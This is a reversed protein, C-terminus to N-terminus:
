KSLLRPIDRLCSDGLKASRAVVADTMRYEGSGWDEPRFYGNDVAKGLLILGFNLAFRLRHNLNAAWPADTTPHFRGHNSPMRRAINKRAGPLRRESNVTSM